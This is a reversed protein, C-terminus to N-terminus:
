KDAEGLAKMGTSILKVAEERSRAECYVRLTPETGSQRFLIWSGGELFLKAGDM